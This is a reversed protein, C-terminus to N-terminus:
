VSRGDDGRRADGVYSLQYLLANTIRLDATRIREDAGDEEHELAVLESPDEGDLWPAHGEYLDSTHRSQPSKQSIRALLDAPLEGPGPCIAERYEAGGCWRAYHRSTTSVDAHGLQHSVYGLQVGTTLLQSAYTDRLDKMARHGIEAGKCIRRWERGRFNDPDVGELVLASPGPRFHDRYLAELASRLRRSLGVRRDRGSKTTEIAGGTGSPSSQDILLARGRDDEDEGWAVAGWRLGLAEALRLGADLQLLVMVYAPLGERRAAEVLRVLEDPREVPRITRGVTAEARGRKTRARRSLQERFRPVPSEELIAIDKAYAFVAAITNLQHRGTATSREKAQIELGWWERLMAPTIDDLRRRDFHPLISGGQRLQRQRDGQTRTALHGTDEELYRKVFEGFTPMVGAYRTKNEVGRKEEYLDRFQAAELWDTARTDVRFRHGRVVRVYWISGRYVTLNRYKAGKPRSRM